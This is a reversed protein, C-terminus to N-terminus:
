AHVSSPVTRYIMRCRVSGAVAGSVSTYCTVCQPGPTKNLVTDRHFENIIIIHCVNPPSCCQFTFRAMVQIRLTAVIM